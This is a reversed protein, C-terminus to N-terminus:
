AEEGEVVIIHLSRPGHAGLLLTQEIDGSRSPGTIMNVTRPLTGDSRRADRLVTEYDGAIDYANIVVIHNEPLFNLTTPNDQGSTLVLTGTEAVGAMAHSLGVPDDGDSPGTSRTLSPTRSWDISELRQDEGHRVSQPLNRSRLYDAVAEAVDETSTVRATTAQVANAKECFLDTRDALPIKGREPIVGSSPSSLRRAVAAKRDSEAQASSLQKGIKSLIAGRGSM